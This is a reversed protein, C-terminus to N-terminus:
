GILGPRLECVQKLDFDGIRPNLERGIYFNYIQSPTDGGKALLAGSRFSMVWLCVSMLITIFFSAVALQVYNDYVWVLPAPGVGTVRPLQDFL